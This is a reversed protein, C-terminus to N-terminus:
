YYWQRAVVIAPEHGCGAIVKKTQEAMCKDIVGIQTVMTWPFFRHVLFEAQRRRKRNTDADNDSWNQAKMVKWDIKSLDALDEFFQSFWLEAHGETFCYELGNAKSVADASGVLHLVERQGGTYGDVNGKHIACLMPSRPAFYFPVYDSLTGTRCVPVARRDRRQKIHKHAIGRVRLRRSAIAKDCHLGGEDIIAKLNQIHTIHYIPTLAGLARM